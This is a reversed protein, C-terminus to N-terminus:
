RTALARGIHAILLKTLNLAFRADHHDVPFEAGGPDDGAAIHRGRHLFQGTQRTLDNLVRAEDPDSLSAFIEQRAGPLADIAARCYLFVAPDDHTAYATEAKRIQSVAAQLTTDDRPLVIETSIYQVTGIPELVRSFWDSRAVEFRLEARNAQGFSVYIPEGPQPDSTFRHADENNDQARLWGTLKLELDVRDGPSQTELFSIGARSVPIEIAIPRGGHALSVGTIFGTGLLEGAVRLEAQM